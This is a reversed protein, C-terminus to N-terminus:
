QVCGAKATASQDNDERCEHFKPANPDVVIQAFFTASQSAGPLPIDLVETQGPFLLHTTAAAAIPVGPAASDFVAVEVGEPLSALGANRVAAHAVLPSACAVTLSVTADPADFIGKDQVNQRFDNLWPLSINQKEVKPISGYVNPADCASDHDDCVNTVHYTHENWLTRTGVWSNSADGFLVVGRYAKGAAPRADV